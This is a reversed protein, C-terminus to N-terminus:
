TKAGANMQGVGRREKEGVMELFIRKEKTAMAMEKV